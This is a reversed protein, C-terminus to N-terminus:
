VLALAAKFAEAKRASNQGWLAGYIRNERRAADDAGRVTRQHDYWRTVANAATWASASAVGASIEQDWNRSWKALVQAADQLEEREDRNTPTTPLAKGDRELEIYVRTWFEQLEERKMPRADLKRAAAEFATQGKTYRELAARADRIKAAVDGSHRFTFAGGLGALAADATNKCVVRITTPGTTVAATGDHGAHALMYRRVIDRDNNLGFAGGDLLIFVRRGGKLSGITELKLSGAAADTLQALMEGLEANQVPKYTDTVAAFVEGTDERALLRYADTVLRRQGDITGSCGDTLVVRWPLFRRIGEDMTTGDAVKSGLGHWAKEGAFGFSDTQTMAHCRHGRALEETTHIQGLQM